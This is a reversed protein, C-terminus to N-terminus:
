FYTCVNQENKKEENSKRDNHQKNKLEKEKHFFNKCIRNDWSHIFPNKKKMKIKNTNKNPEHNTQRKLAIFFLFLFLNNIAILYRSHLRNKNSILNM